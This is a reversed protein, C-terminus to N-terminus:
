ARSRRQPWNQDPWGPQLSNGSLNIIPRTQPCVARRKRSCRAAPQGSAVILEGPVRCAPIDAEKRRVSWLWWDAIPGVRGERDNVHCNAVACLRGSGCSRPRDGLKRLSAQLQHYTRIRRRYAVARLIAKLFSHWVKKGHWIDIGGAVVTSRQGIISCRDRRGAIVARPGVMLDGRIAGGSRRGPRWCRDGISIAGSKGRM